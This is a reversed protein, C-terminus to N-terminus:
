YKSSSFSKNENHNLNPSLPATFNKQPTSSFSLDGTILTQQSRELESKYRKLEQKLREVQKKSSTLQGVQYNVQSEKVQDHSIKQKTKENDCLEM